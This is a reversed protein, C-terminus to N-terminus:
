WFFGKYVSKSISKVRMMPQISFVSLLLFVLGFIGM